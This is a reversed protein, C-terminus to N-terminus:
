DSTIFDIEDLLQAAIGRTLPEAASHEAEAFPNFTKALTAPDALGAERGAPTASLNLLNLMLRLATYRVMPTDSTMATIATDLADPTHRLLKLCLIDAVETATVESMWRAATAADMGAAPYLMPALLLSERTRRDAWLEEALEADKPLDTAIETIQPLNLGFIMHYGLGGKRLTDAIIGNRMAFFRRKIVQM